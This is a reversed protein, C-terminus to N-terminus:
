SERLGRRLTDTLPQLLYRLFTREGTVIMADAPMGATLIVDQPLATADVAIRATYYPQNTEPDTLRDASVDRVTGNIRPLNRSKYALLHVEAPLGPHVEDIDIPAVRAELILADGAPVIDLIPEGAAIVGGPTKVVLAVVTGDVPARVVTRELQDQTARLREELGGLDRRAQALDTAVEDIRESVLSTMQMRAESIVQRAQAINAVSTAKEGEIQARSRELALLRPKRELGDRLLTKVTTIEELILKLQREFSQIGAEHGQIEAVAQSARERLVALQDELARERSVFRATESELVVHVAPDEDGAALLTVPFRLEPEDAAETLLRAEQAKLGRWQALLTAHESRARTADLDILPQGATVRDGDRVMIQRVIGGELHALSKRSGEPVVVAPAVAAGALPAIAAWGGFGVFFVLAVAAGALLPTRLSTSVKPMM